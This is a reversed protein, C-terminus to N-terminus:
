ELVAFKKGIIVASISSFPRSGKQAMCSPFLQLLVKQFTQLLLPPSATDMCISALSASSQKRYPSSTTQTHLVTPTNNHSHTVEMQRMGAAFPFHAALLTTSAGERSTNL